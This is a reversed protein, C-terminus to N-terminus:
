VHLIPFFLDIIADLSWQQCESFIALLLFVDFLLPRDKVRPVFIPCPCASASAVGIVKDGLRNKGRGRGGLLFGRM